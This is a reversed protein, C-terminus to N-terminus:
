WAHLTHLLPSTDRHPPCCVSLCCTSSPYFSLCARVCLLSDCTASSTSHNVVANDSDQGNSETNRRPSSAFRNVKGVDAGVM